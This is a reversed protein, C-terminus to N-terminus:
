THSLMPFMLRNGEFLDEKEALIFLTTDEERHPVVRFGELVSPSFGLVAKQEESEALVGLVELLPADSSGYLECCEMYEADYEVVAALDYDELYYIHESMFGECYFMLLGQNEGVSLRAYPNYHEYCHLLLDKDEEKGMDLKRVAGPIREVTRECHFEERKVFGFKPYFDLVSDNAFLYLGDCRNTWEELVRQILYRCLGKKRYAAGTMVTGLQIYFRSEGQYRVPIRNVSVNSVVTNGDMLVYPLYDGGVHEFSIGFTEKALQNFSRKAEADQDSLIRFEYATGQITVDM